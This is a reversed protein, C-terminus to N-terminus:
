RLGSRGKWEYKVFLSVFATIIIYFPYLMELPLMFILLKSKNAFASFGNMVPIDILLKLLIYLGFIAFFWPVFFGSIFAIGLMLNFLSVVLPVTISWPTRYGKAKSAWRIRQSVFDGIRQPPKTKVIVEPDKLFHISNKGFQKTMQHILFVDDGSAFDTGPMAAEIELFAMRSFAMNAGNGMLPLHAGIAGAGSAVLSLFDLSFLNQFLGKENQYVVPGIILGPKNENYYAAMKSLWQVPLSCDGDTTLILQGTAHKVGHTIAAKKGIGAPKTLIINDINNEKRYQGILKRTQDESHDDVLIVEINEHPYTQSYISELLGVINKEENRLAIVLSILLDPSNSIREYKRLRFWGVTIIAMVLLYALASATLTWIFISIAM